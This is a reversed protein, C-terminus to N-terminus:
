KLFKNERKHLDEKNKEEKARKAISSSLAKNPKRERKQTDIMPKPNTTATLNIYLM